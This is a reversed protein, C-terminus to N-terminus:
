RRCLERWINGIFYLVFFTIWVVGATVLLEVVGGGLFILHLGLAILLVVGAFLLSEILFMKVTLFKLISGM